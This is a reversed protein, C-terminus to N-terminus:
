IKTSAWKLFHLPPLWPNMRTCNIFFLLLILLLLKFISKAKEYEGKHYYEEALEETEPPVRSGQIAQRWYFNIIWTGSVILIGYFPPFPPPM